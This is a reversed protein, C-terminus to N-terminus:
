DIDNTISAQILNSDEEKIYHFLQLGSKIKEWDQEEEVWEFKFNADIIYFSEEKRIWEEPLNILPKEKYVAYINFRVYNDTCNYEVKEKLKNDIANYFESLSHNSHRKEDIIVTNKEQEELLEILYNDRDLDDKFETRIRDGM